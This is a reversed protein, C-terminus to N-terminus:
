ETPTGTCVFLETNTWTTNGIQKQWILAGNADYKYIGQSPNEGRYLNSQEIDVALRWAGFDTHNYIVNGSMDIRCTYFNWGSGMFISGDTPSVGIGYIWSSPYNSKQWVIGGNINLRYLNNQYYYCSYPGWAEGANVYAGGDIPNVHVQRPETIDIAWIITGNSSVKLVKNSGAASVYFGGTTVDTSIFMFGSYGWNLPGWVINGDSNIKYVGENATTGYTSAYIGGEVPNASIYTTYNSLPLEWELAGLANFKYVRFDSNTLNNTNVIYFADEKLNRDYAGAIPYFSAIPMTEQWRVNGDKDARVIQNETRSESVGFVIIDTLLANTKKLEILLPSNGITNIFMKLSDIPYVHAYTTYGTKEVTLTYNSLSDKVTVVNNLISDLNQVYSYSGNSVTLKASLLKDSEEDAVGIMFGFTKVEIIPFRTLGFDEPKKGQTSLVEVSVPTTMDKIVSFAIPLPSSVNQAEQSGVLPAAFITSDAANLVLFETLKYDGTKLVIKQTYYYGNMQQIKVESSTYKTASGDSLQITLVIKDADALSYAMASKLMSAKTVQSISVAFAVDSDTAVPENSEKQCTMLLSGTLILAVIILVTRLKRM